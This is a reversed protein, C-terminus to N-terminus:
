GPTNASLFFTTVLQKILEADLNEKQLYYSAGALLGQQRFEEENYGSLILVHTNQLAQKIQRTAEIGNILPLTVDMFVVNPTLQIALQVAELGDAAEGVVSWNSQSQVLQRVQTRYVDTDDVILFTISTIVFTVHTPTFSTSDEGNFYV